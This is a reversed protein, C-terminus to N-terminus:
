LMQVENDLELMAEGELLVFWEDEEQEYWGGDEISNSVVRNITVKSNEFLTSLDESGVQPTSYEFINIM